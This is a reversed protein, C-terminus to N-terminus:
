RKDRFDWRRSEQNGWLSKLLRMAPQQHSRLYPEDMCGVVYLAFANEAALSVDGSAEV